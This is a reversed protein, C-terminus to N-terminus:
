SRSQNGSRRRADALEQPTDIDAFIADTGLDVERVDAAHKALLSKAGVDGELQLMGVFLRAPWLVPNGRRGDHTPVVVATGGGEGFAAILRDLHAASIHPMDGLLVLAGACEAPVARLGARLSTSLGQAYSPNEVSRLDLGAVAGLVQERQHGVVVLVPDAQSALAAEAVWRVMPKGGIQALMKSAGGMRTSRGAALVIAAVSATGQHEGASM